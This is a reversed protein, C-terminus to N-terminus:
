YENQEFKHEKLYINLQKVTLKNFIEGSKVYYDWNIDMYKQNKMIRKTEAKKKRKQVEIARLTKCLRCCSM